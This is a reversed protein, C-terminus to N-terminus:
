FLIASFRKLLDPDKQKRVCSFIGKKPHIKSTFCM